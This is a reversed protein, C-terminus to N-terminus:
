TGCRPPPASSPRSAALGDASRALHTRTAAKVDTRGAVFEAAFDAVTASARPAVLGVAALKDHMVADLGAVWNATHGDPAHGAIRATLLREVM